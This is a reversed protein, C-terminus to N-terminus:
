ALNRLGLRLRERARAIRSEVAKRTTGVARAIESQSLQGAETETKVGARKLIDGSLGPHVVTLLLDGVKLKPNEARKQILAIADDM